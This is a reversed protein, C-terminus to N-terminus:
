KKGKRWKARTANIKARNAKAYARAYKRQKAQRIKKQAPTENALRDKYREKYYKRMLSKNRRYWARWAANKKEANMLAAM